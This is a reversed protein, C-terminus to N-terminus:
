GSALLVKQLRLSSSECDRLAFDITGSFSGVTEPNQLSSAYRSGWETLVNILQLVALGRSDSLSYEVHRLRGSLDTRVILGDREMERLHQTLMKKSALPFMRRLQSLRAPGRQLSSLIGIKWKGQILAITFQVSLDDEAPCQHCLATEEDEEQREAYATRISIPERVTDSITEDRKKGSNAQAHGATDRIM